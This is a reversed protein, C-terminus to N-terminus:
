ERKNEDIFRYKKLAEYVSKNIKQERYYEEALEHIYKTKENNYISIAEELTKIGKFIFKKYEKYITVCFSDKKSNTIGNHISKICKIKEKILNNIRKPVFCCKDPSYEKNGNVLIDKDLEYGEVYNKDFWMKFNSLYKWEDCVYCDSYTYEKKHFSKYYCRYMMAKWVLYFKFHKGNRSIPEELDNIGVGYLKAKIKNRGCTPCGCGDLHENPTQMFYKKCTNCYIEVKSTCNRYVVNEYSYKDKHIKIADQIFEETTKRKPM